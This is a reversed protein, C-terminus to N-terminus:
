DLAQIREILGAEVMGDAEFAAHAEGAKEIWPAIDPDIMTVGYESEATELASVAGAATAEAYAESAEVMATDIADLHAPDLTMRTVNSMWIQNLQYYEGINTFYKAQEFHKFEVNDAVTGTLGDVVGTALSTYVDGWPIVQINAGLAEWTRIPVESEFMRLKFGDLDAPTEIPRNSVIGRDYPRIWNKVVEPDDLSDRAPFTIGVAELEDLIEDFLPSAVFSAFHDRDRFVLPMTMVGIRPAAASLFDIAGGQFDQAGAIVNQLMEPGGGLQSNWFMQVEVAGDTLEGVRDAFTQFAAAEPANESVVTGLRLTVDQALAPAALVLSLVLALSRHPVVTM